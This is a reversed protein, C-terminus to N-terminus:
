SKKLNYRKKKDIEDWINLVEPTETSDYPILTYSSGEGTPYAYGQTSTSEM